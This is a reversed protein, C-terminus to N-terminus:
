LNAIQDAVQTSDRGNDEDGWTVVSGEALIAAFAFETAQIGEVNRLQDRVKFSNGGYEPDGWTVVSGDTLIAAFAWDTAQIQRVNEM